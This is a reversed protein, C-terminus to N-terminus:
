AVTTTFTVTNDILIALYEYIRSKGTTMKSPVGPGLTAYNAFRALKGSSAVTRQSQEQRGSKEM